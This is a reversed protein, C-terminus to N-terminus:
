RVPASLTVASDLAPTCVKAYTKKKIFNRLIRIKIVQNEAGGMNSSSTRDSCNSLLVNLGLYGTNKFSPSAGKFPDAELPGGRGGGVAFLRYGGVGATATVGVGGLAATIGLAGGDDM